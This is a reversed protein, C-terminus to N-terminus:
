NAESFSWDCFQNMEPTLTVLSTKVNKSHGDGIAVNATESHRGQIVQLQITRIARAYGVNGDYFMFSEAPLTLAALSKPANNPIFGNVFVM